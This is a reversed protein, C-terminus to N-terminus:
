RQFASTIITYIKNWMKEQSVVFYYYFYYLCGYVYAHVTEKETKSNSYMHVMPKSILIFDMRRGYRGM